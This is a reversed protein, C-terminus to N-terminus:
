RGSRVNRSWSPPLRNFDVSRGNDPNVLRQYVQADCAKQLNRLMVEEVQGGTTAKDFVAKAVANREDSPPMLYAVAHLLTGFTVHNPTMGDQLEITKLVAFAIKLAATQQQATGRTRGCVDVATNYTVLTPSVNSSRMRKLLALAKTAKIPDESRGYAQLVATCAVANVPPVSIEDTSPNDAAAFLQDLLADCKEVASYSAMARAWTKLLTTYTYINPSLREREAATPAAQAREKCKQLLADAQEQPLTSAYKTRAVRSWCDMVTTYSMVDPQDDEGEEKEQKNLIEMAGRAFEIAREPQEQAQRSFAHLVSNVTRISPKVNPVQKEHLKKMHQWIQQTKELREPLDQTAYAYADILANYSLSDPSDLEKFLHEVYQSASPDRSKAWAEMVINYSQNDPQLEEPGPPHMLWDQARLVADKPTYINVSDTTGFPNSSSSVPDSKTASSITVYGHRLDVLRHCCKSWAKLVTNYTVLDTTTGTQELAHLWLSEAKQAAAVSEQLDSASGATEAWQNVEKNLDLLLSTPHKPEPSSNGNINAADGDTLLSSSLRSPPLRQNQPSSSSTSRGSPVAMFATTTRTGSSLVVVSILIIRLLRVDQPAFATRKQTSKPSVM